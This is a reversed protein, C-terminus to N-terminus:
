HVKEQALLLCLYGDKSCVSCQADELVTTCTPFLPCVVAVKGHTMPRGIAMSFRTTSEAGVMVMRKGDSVAEAMLIRDLPLGPTALSGSVYATLMHLLILRLYEHLSTLLIGTHCSSRRLKLLIQILVHSYRHLRGTSNTSQQIM